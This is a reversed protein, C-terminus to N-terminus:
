AINHIEYELRIKKANLCNSLAIGTCSSFVYSFHTSIYRIKVHFNDVVLMCQRGVIWEICHYLTKHSSVLYENFLAYFYMWNSTLKWHLLNEDSRKSNRKIDIICGFFFKILIHNGCFTWINNHIFIKGYHYKRDPSINGDKAMPFFNM